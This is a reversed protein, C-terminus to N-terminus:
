WEGARLIESGRQALVDQTRPRLRHPVVKPAKGEPWPEIVFEGNDRTGVVNVAEFPDDTWLCPVDHQFIDGKARLFGVYCAELARVYGKYPVKQPGPQPVVKPPAKLTANEAELAALRDQLEKRTPERDDAM